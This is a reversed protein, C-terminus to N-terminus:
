QGSNKIRELQTKWCIKCTMKLSEPKIITLRDGFMLLWRSFGNDIDRISYVMETEEGLDKESVFGYYHRDWKM